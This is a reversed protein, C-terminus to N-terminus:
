HNISNRSYLAMQLLTGIEIMFPEDTCCSDHAKVEYFELEPQGLSPSYKIFSSIEVKLLDLSHNRLSGRFIGASARRFKNLM